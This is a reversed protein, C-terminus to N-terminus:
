LNKKIFKSPTINTSKKFAKYFSARSNFGVESAIAEITYKSHSESLKIKAEKIRFKNIYDRFSYKSKENIVQSIQYEPINLIESLDRLKLDKKIFLKEENMLFDIRAIFLNKDAESLNSKNYTSDIKLNSIQNKSTLLKITLLILLISFVEHVHYNYNGSFGFFQLSISSALYILSGVILLMIWKITSIESKSPRTIEKNFNKFNIYILIMYFTSYTYQFYLYWTPILGLKNTINGNLVSIKYESSQSYFPILYLLIIIPPIFHIIINKKFNKNKSLLFYVYLYISVPRLLGVPYNVKFWHPYFIIYGSNYLFKVFFVAASAIFFILLWFNTIYNKSKIGFSIALLISLFIGILILLDGNFLQSNM